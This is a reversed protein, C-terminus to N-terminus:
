EVLELYTDHVMATEDPFVVEYLPNEGNEIDNCDDDSCYIIIGIDGHTVDRVLDGVKM